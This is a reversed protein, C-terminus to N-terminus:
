RVCRSKLCIFVLQHRENLVKVLTTEVLIRAHVLPYGRRDRLRKRIRGRGNLRNDIFRGGGCRTCSRTSRAPSRGRYLLRGFLEAMRGVSFFSRFITGPLTFLQGAKKKDGNKMSNAKVESILM